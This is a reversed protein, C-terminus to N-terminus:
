QSPPEVFVVSKGMARAIVIEANVGTSQEYGDLMLVHVEDCWELFTKDYREWFDWGKPLEGAMAIPHTHSIPSFVLVGRAMYQAAVASVQEFRLQQIAPDPHSYPCALYVKSSTM